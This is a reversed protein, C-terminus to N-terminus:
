RCAVMTMRSSVLRLIYRAYTTSAATIRAEQCKLMRRFGSTEIKLPEVSGFHHKLKQVSCRLNASISGCPVIGNGAITVSPSNACGDYFSLLSKRRM